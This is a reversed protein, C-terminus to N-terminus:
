DPRKLDGDGVQIPKGRRNPRLAIKLRHSTSLSQDHRGTADGGVGFVKFTLTGDAGSEKVAEIALDIEVSDVDFRLDRGEGRAVADTLEERLNEIADALGTPMRLQSTMAVIRCIPPLQM